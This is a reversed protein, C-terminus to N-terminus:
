LLDKGIPISTPRYYQERYIKFKKEAPDEEILRIFNHLVNELAQTEYMPVYGINQDRGAVSSGLM